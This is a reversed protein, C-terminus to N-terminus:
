DKKVHLTFNYEGQWNRKKGDRYRAISERVKKFTAEGEKIVVNFGFEDLTAHSEELDLRGWDRLDPHLYELEDDKVFQAVHRDDPRDVDNVIYFIM